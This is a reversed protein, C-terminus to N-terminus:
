LGPEAGGSELHGVDSGFSKQRCTVSRIRVHVVVLTRTWLGVRLMPVAVATAKTCVCVPQNCLLGFLSQTLAKKVRRSLHMAHLHRRPQLQWGPLSASLLSPVALLFQLTGVWGTVVQPLVSSYTCAQLRRWGWSGKRLRATHVGAVPHMHQLPQCVTHETFNNLTYQRLM